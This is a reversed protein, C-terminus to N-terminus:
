IIKIPLGLHKLGNWTLEPNGKKINGIFDIITGKDVHEVIWREAGVLPANYAMGTSTYMTYDALEDMHNDRLWYSMYGLMKPNSEGWNM